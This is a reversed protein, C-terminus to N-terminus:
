AGKRGNLERMQQFIAVMKEVRDALAELEGLLEGLSQKRKGGETGAAFEVLAAHARRVGHITETLPLDEALHVGEALRQIDALVKLREARQAPTEPTDGSSVHNKNYYRVVVALRSLTDLMRQRGVYKELDAELFRLIQEVPERGDRIGKRIAAQQRGELIWGGVLAVLKTLPGPAQATGIFKWADPDTQGGALQTMTGHLSSLSGALAYVNKQWQSAPDLGALEALRKGYMATQKLLQIRADIARPDYARHVLPTPLKDEVAAVQKSRDYAREFLYLDLDLRNLELYYASLTVTATDVSKQFRAIPEKFNQKRCGSALVAALLLLCLAGTRAAKM